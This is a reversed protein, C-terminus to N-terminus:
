EVISWRCDHLFLKRGDITRFALIGAPGEKYWDAIFTNIVAGDPALQNITVIAPKPPDLVQETQTEPSTRTLRLVLVGGASLVFLALLLLGFRM